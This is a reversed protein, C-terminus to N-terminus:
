LLQRRKIDLYANVAAACSEEASTEVVLAGFHRLERVLQARGQVLESAVLTRCLEARSAPLAQAAAEQGADKLVLVLPLHRPMLTRVAALLEAQDGREPLVTLLLVLTRSRLRRRLHAALAGFDSHLFETSIGTAFRAVAALHSAGRGQAIGQDVEASFSLLGSRDEARNCVYATLLAANVAHDARTLAGVRGAMRHGRDVCVLVDQSREVRFERVILKRQRASAKWALQRYDDGNVYDRLRDFERGQGVRPAMRTGLGRLFLANLQAHLRHVLKLNPSVRVLQPGGSQVIREILGWRTLAVHPPEIEAEGRSVGLVEHELALREGASCLGSATRSGGGLLAPLRTRLTVELGAPSDHAVAVRLTEREGLSVVVVEDRAVAARTRRLFAAEILACAFIGLAAGAAIWTLPWFLLGVVALAVAGGLAPALRRGARWNV